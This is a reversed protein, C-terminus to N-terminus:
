RAYSEEPIEWVGNRKFKKEDIKMISLHPTYETSPIGEITFIKRVTEEISELFNTEKVDPKAYLFQHGFHGRGSFRLTMASKAAIAEVPTKCQHLIKGERQIEEANELRMVMLSVHLKESSITTPRLKEDYKAISHQIGDVKKHLEPNHIRMALFFNPQIGEPRKNRHSM